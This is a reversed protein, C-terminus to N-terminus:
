SKYYRKARENMEELEAIIREAAYYHKPEPHREEVPIISGDERRPHSHFICKRLEAVVEERIHSANEKRFTEIMKDGDRYLKGLAQDIGMGKDFRDSKMIQDTEILKMLGDGSSMLRANRAMSFAVSNPADAVVIGIIPGGYVGARIKKLLVNKGRISLM